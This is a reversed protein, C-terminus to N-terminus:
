FANARSIAAANAPVPCIQRHREVVQLIFQKQEEDRTLSVNFHQILAVSREAFDNVVKVSRCTDQNRKYQELNDWESLDHELFQEDLKLTKFFQLLSTTV